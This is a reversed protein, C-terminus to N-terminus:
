GGGGGCGGGGGGDGRGEKEKGLNTINSVYDAVLAGRKSGESMNSLERNLLRRFKEQAMDGVSKASNISELQRVCWDLENLM